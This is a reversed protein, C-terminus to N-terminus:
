PSLVLRYNSRCVNSRCTTKKMGNRVQYFDISM